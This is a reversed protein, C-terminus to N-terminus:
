WLQPPPPPHTEDETGTPESAPPPDPKLPHVAETPFPKPPPEKHRGQKLRVYARRGGPRSCKWQTTLPTSPPPATAVLSSGTGVVAAEHPAECVIAEVHM